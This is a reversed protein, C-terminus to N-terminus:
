GRQQIFPFVLQLAQVAKKNSKEVESKSKIIIDPDYKTKLDSKKIEIVNTGIPNLIRIIKNGKFHQKYM